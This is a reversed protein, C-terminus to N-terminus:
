MREIVRKRNKFVNMVARDSHLNGGKDESGNGLHSGRVVEEVGVDNTTDGLRSEFIDALRAAGNLVVRDLERRVRRGIDAISGRDISRVNDAVLASKGGGALGFNQSDIRTLFYAELQSNSCLELVWARAQNIHGLSGSSADLCVITRTIPKLDVFLADAVAAVEGGGGPTVVVPVINSRLNGLVSRVSLVKHASLVDTNMTRVDVLRLM